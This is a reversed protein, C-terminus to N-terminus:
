YPPIKAYGLMTGLDGRGVVPQLRTRAPAPPLAITRTQRRQRLVARAVYAANLRADIDFAAFAGEACGDEVWQKPDRVV